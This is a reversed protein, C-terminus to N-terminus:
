SSLQRRVQILEGVISVAIEEPTEGGINLGIPSHVQELREKKFGQSMLYEYIAKRKRRSSIMGIYGTNFKLSQELVTRDYQHGRTVIVIFSDADIELGDFARSFDKIVLTKDAEPFREANAYEPRDDIVVVRFGVLAALHATPVALHGAGFCYLTKLKRMRDVIVRTDGLPLVATHTVNHLESKLKVVDSATLSAGGSINGDADFIGHGLVRFSGKDGKLHTLFHFDKGQRIMGYWQRSIERNGSSALIYDLLIEAKGGCIMDSSMADKGSLEYSMIRSKKTALVNKAEQIAAAEILSGGITGYTQGDAGVVMKTGGHRPTSGQLSLISLLVLPRGTALQGNVSKALYENEDMKRDPYVSGAFV